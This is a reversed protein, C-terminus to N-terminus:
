YLTKGKWGINAATLETVAEDVLRRHDDLNLERGVVKTSILTALNATQTWLDHIAQDKATEIERLLRTRDAQIEAKSRSQMEEVLRRGDERAEDLAKRMEDAIRAREQALHARLNAAEERAQRSEELAARINEERKALGELMPGWAFRRLIFLLLVFVVLTWIGLDLAYRFIPIGEKAKGDDVAWAPAAAASLWLLATGVVIMRWARRM